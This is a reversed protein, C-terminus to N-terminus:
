YIQRIYNFFSPFSSARRPQNTTDNIELHEISIYEPLNAENPPTLTEKCIHAQMQIPEQVHTQTEVDCKIINSKLKNNTKMYYVLLGTISSAIVTGIICKMM